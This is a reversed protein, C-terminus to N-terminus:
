VEPFSHIFSHMEEPALFCEQCRGTRESRRTEPSLNARQPKSFLYALIAGLHKRRSHTEEKRSTTVWNGRNPSEIHCARKKGRLVRWGCLCKWLNPGPAGPRLDPVCVCACVCSLFATHLGNIQDVGLSFYPCFRSFLFVFISSPTCLSIWSVRRYFLRRKLKWNLFIELHKWILTYRCIQLDMTLRKWFAWEKWESPRILIRSTGLVSISRLALLVFSIPLWCDHHPTLVCTPVCVPACQLALSVGPRVRNAHPSGLCKISLPLHSPPLLWWLTTLQARRGSSHTKFQSPHRSKSLRGLLASSM